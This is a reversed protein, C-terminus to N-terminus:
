PRPEPPDVRACGAYTRREGEDIFATTGKNWFVIREDQNAYRAGSASAAQPLALQRGDSLELLVRPQLTQQFVARISKGDDCAFSASIAQPDVSAIAVDHPRSQLGLEKSIKLAVAYTDGVAQDSYHQSGRNWADGLAFWDIAEAPGGTRM